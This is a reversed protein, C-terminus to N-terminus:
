GNLIVGHVVGVKQHVTFGPSLNTLCKDMSEGRVISGTEM